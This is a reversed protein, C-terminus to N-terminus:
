IKLFEILEILGHKNFNEGIDWHSLINEELNSLVLSKDFEFTKSVAITKKTKIDIPQNM